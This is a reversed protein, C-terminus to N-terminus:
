FTVCVVIQILHDMICFRSIMQEHFGQVNMDDFLFFSTSLDIFPKDTYFGCTFM